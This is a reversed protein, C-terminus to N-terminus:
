AVNPVGTTWFYGKHVTTTLAADDHVLTYTHAISKKLRNYLQEDIEEDTSLLLVQDNAHPFYREVLHERHYSDLRGLPTDIVSPLENGAVRAVGWLLSVALLQREGASLRARDLPEGDHGILNLTYKDTDISLDRILGSKRMLQRLSALVATELKNISEAILGAAYRALTDRARETYDELRQLENSTREKKASDRKARDRMIQLEARRATAEAQAEEAKAVLAELSGVELLADDRSEMLETIATAAAGRDRKGSTASALLEDVTDREASLSNARKVLNRAATWSGALNQDLSSLQVLMDHPLNLQRPIRADQNRRDRDSELERAIDSAAAAPVAKELLEVLWQDRKELADLVETAQTAAHERQAHERVTSLADRVLLLPLPGAAITTRLDQEVDQLQKQLQKSQATLEAHREFVAGGEKQFRKQADSLKNMARELRPKLSAIDQKASDVRQEASQLEAEIGDVVDSAKRDSNREEEARRQVVRLDTRLQEVLDVGLLSQVASKIVDASRQPDALAEIKEGDFFFLSAVDLPLIEEVHDTWGQSFMGNPNKSGNLYVQLFERVKGDEIRWSREVKYIREESDVIISFEVTVSAGTSPDASRNISDRLYKHYSGRTSQSRPGYLALQVAELLTTKGCGNLGGILIIPKDKKTALTLSQEGRYAGFDRLTIKRLHM